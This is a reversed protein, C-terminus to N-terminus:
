PLLYFIGALLGSIIIVWIPSLKFKELLLLCILGIIINSYNIQQYNNEILFAEQAILLGAGAILAIICPRIGALIGQVAPKKNINFFFKAVLLCIIASPLVIGATCIVAGPFGALKMGVFTAANLSFPGPTA